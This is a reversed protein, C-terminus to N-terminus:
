CAKSATRFMIGLNLKFPLTDESLDAELLLHKFAFVRIMLVMRYASIEPLPKTQEVLSIKPTCEDGQSNWEELLYTDERRVFQFRM